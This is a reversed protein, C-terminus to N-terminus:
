WGGSRRPSRGPRPGRASAGALDVPIVMEEGRWLALEELERVVHSYRLRRGRNEGRAIDTEQAGDYVALWLTAGEEPAQGAPVVIAGGGAPEFRLAVPKPAARAEDILGAVEGRRSGVVERNGDIVMLPVREAGAPVLLPGAGPELQQLGSQPHQRRPALGERHAVHDVLRADGVAGEVVVEVVPPLEEDSVGLFWKYVM